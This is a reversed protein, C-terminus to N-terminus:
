ISLGTYDTSSSTDATGTGWTTMDGGASGGGSWSLWDTASNTPSFGSTDVTSPTPAVSAAPDAIQVDYAQKQAPDAIFPNAPGSSTVYPNTSGSTTGGGGFYKQLLSGAAAGIQGGPTTAAAGKGGAAGGTTGGAATTFQSAIGGMIQQLLSSVQGNNALQMQVATATGKFNLGSANLFNTVLSTYAQQVAQLAGQAINVNGQVMNQAMMAANNDIQQQGVLAASSNVNAGLGAKMTAAQGRRYQDIQAQQAPTLSGSAYQGATGLLQQNVANTGAVTQGTAGGAQPGGLLQNTGATGLAGAPATTGSIANTLNQANTQARGAQYLSAGIPIAASVAPNSLFSGIDSGITSLWSQNGSSPTSGPNNAIVSPTDTVSSPLTQANAGLDPTAAPNNPDAM